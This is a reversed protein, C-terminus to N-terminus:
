GRLERLLPLIKEQMDNPMVPGIHKYRIRGTADVVFTEPVGTVGWDIAVRGSGDAGIGIYPNGFQGLWALADEPRDKYNIGFIPINEEEALRVLVPHEIRCPGCWSAFVNVLAPTGGLDASAFGREHGPLPPLAFAPAPRDILASPVARPDRDLGALFYAALLAFVALPLFAILRSM